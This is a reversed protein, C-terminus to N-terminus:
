QKKKKRKPELAYQLFLLGRYETDDQVRNDFSRVRGGRVGFSLHSYIPFGWLEVGARRELNGNELYVAGVGTFDETLPIFAAVRGNMVTDPGDLRHVRSAGIDGLVQWSNQAALARYVDARFSDILVKQQADSMDSMLGLDSMNQMAAKDIIYDLSSEGGVRFLFSGNPTHDRRHFQVGLALWDVPETVAVINYEPETFGDSKEGDDDLLRQGIMANVGFRRNSSRWAGGVHLGHESIQRDFDKMDTLRMSYIATIDLDGSVQHNVDVQGGLQETVFELNSNFVNTLSGNPDVLDVHDYVARVDAKSTIDRKFGRVKFGTSGLRLGLAGALFKRTETTDTETTTTDIYTPQSDIVVNTMGHTFESEDMAANLTLPLGVIREFDLLAYGGFNKDVSKDGNSDKSRNRSGTVIARLGWLRADLSGARDQNSQESGIGLTALIRDDYPPLLLPAPKKPQQTPQPTPQFPKAPPQVPKAPEPPTEQSPKYDLIMKELEAQQEETLSDIDRNGYKAFSVNEKAATLLSGYRATNPDAKEAQGYMFHAHLFNRESEGRLRKVSEDDLGPKIAQNYTDIGLDWAAGAKGELAKEEPTQGFYSKEQGLPQALEKLKESLSQKDQDPTDDQAALGIAPMLVVGAGTAALALKNGDSRLTHYRFKNNEYILIQEPNVAKKIVDGM